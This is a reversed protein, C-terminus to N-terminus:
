FFSKKCYSLSVHCLIVCACEIKWLGFKGHACPKRLSLGIHKPVPIGDVQIVLHLLVCLILREINQVVARGKGVAVNVHAVGQVLDELIKDVLGAHHRAIAHGEGGAPIVVAHGDLRGDDLLVLQVALM